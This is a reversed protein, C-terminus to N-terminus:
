QKNKYSYEVDVHLDQIDKVDVAYEGEIGNRIGDVKVAPIYDSDKDGVFTYGFINGTVIGYKTNATIKTNIPYKSKLKNELEEPSIWGSNRFDKEYLKEKVLKM